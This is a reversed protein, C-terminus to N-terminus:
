TSKPNPNKVNKDKARCRWQCRCTYFNLCDGLSAYGHKRFCLSNCGYYECRVKTHTASCIKEAMLLELGGTM